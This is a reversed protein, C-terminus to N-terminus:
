KILDRLSQGGNAALGATKGIIYVGREAGDIIGNDRFNKPKHNPYSAREEWSPKDMEAYWNEMHEKFERKLKKADKGNYAVLGQFVIGAISEFM